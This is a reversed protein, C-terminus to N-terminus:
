NWWWKVTTFYILNNSYIHRGSNAYAFAPRGPAQSTSQCFYDTQWISKTLLCGTPSTGPWWESVWESVWESLVYLVKTYIFWLWKKMMHANVLDNTHRKDMPMNDDEEEIIPIRKKAWSGSQYLLKSGFDKLQSDLERWKRLLAQQTSQFEAQCEPCTEEL